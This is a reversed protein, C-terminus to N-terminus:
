REIRRTEVRRVVVRAVPNRWDRESAVLDGVGQIGNHVSIFGEEGGVPAGGGGAGGCESFSPGPISSCLEDNVETGSDYAVATVSVEGRNPLDISDLGVFADNTPILMGALSLLRARRGRVQVTVSEGPDLLGESTAVGRVANNGALAAELTGTAGEEALMALPGSAAEGPTFLSAGPNHLVVVLPTFQQARTLNTVTVEYTQANSVLPTLILSGTLVAMSCLQNRM